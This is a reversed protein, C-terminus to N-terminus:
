RSNQILQQLAEETSFVPLQCSRNYCVYITTQGNIAQRSELLPTTADPQEALISILIKNPYYTQEIEKRFVPAQPGVVIIEATPQVFYTFLCAWNSLYQGDTLILNKVRALMRSAITHYNSRDLLVGLLYLNKAMASNSAPIVNDFLEKKRVILKEATADTFFFLQEQEDYFNDITYDLMQQASSLWTEDTTIQYLATYADIVFAYDELYGPLTAKSNKYNHWLQPGNQMKEKLFTANQLALDLFRKEGFVAYADILGKLMLGNWSCLIKDDLGPRIRHQRAELLKTKSKALVELFEEVPLENEEAFLEPKQTSHLINNGHEWNGEETIGYYACIWEADHGLITSIEKKTWVYFKGEEGESDADLASYFGGESSTLERELFEITQYVVQKYLTDKTAAFAESYLSVLQGNDYLMKEFHPAFWEPDTSYRAFGGGAQDYIGGSAMRDLTLRLQKLATSNQTIQWYRLLFLYISPMPFKNREKRMGGRETDFQSSLKTYIQELDSHTYQTENSQLRYKQSETIGLHETFSEASELIKDRQQHYAVSIQKLIDVWHQPPFYTGGYFPKAESTLFVNLPWGGQLGMAHLADMYIADVDPREERDVKICVYHTNMIEAIAAKEFCEREMVHCWHCASYGISVIIPKDEARAKQLAEEGWPFWDVPNYAHQLLYPSTEQALRNPTHSIHTPNTM